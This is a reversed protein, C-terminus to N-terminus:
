RRGDRGRSTRAGPSQRARHLRERVAQEPEEVLEPELADREAPDREAPHDPHRECQVRGLPDLAEDEGAGRRVESRGFPPRLARPDDAGLPHLRDRVADDAAPERRLECALLRLRHRAEARHQGRRRRLAVRAAALGETRPVRPLADGRDGHGHEDDRSRVVRRRRDLVGLEDRGPYRARSQMTRSRAAWRAFTSRASANVLATSSCRPCSTGTHAVLPHLRPSLHEPVLVHVAGIAPVVSNVASKWSRM